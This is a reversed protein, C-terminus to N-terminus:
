FLPGPSPDSRNRNLMEYYRSAFYGADGDNKYRLAARDFQQKIINVLDAEFDM